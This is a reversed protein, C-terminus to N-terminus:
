TVCYSYSLWCMKWRSSSSEGCPLWPLSVRLGVLIEARRGRSALRASGRSTLGNSRSCAFANLVPGRGRARHEVPSACHAVFQHLCFIRPRNHLTPASAGPNQRHRSTKRHTVSPAESPKPEVDGPQTHGPVTLLSMLADSLATVRLQVSGLSMNHEMQSAFTLLDQGARWSAHEVACHSGRSPWSMNSM